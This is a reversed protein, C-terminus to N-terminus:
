VRRLCRFCRTWFINSPLRQQLVALQTSNCHTSNCRAHRPMECPSARAHHPIEGVQHKLDNPRISASNSTWMKNALNGLAEAMLGKHGLFNTRRRAFCLLYPPRCSWRLLLVAYCTWISDVRGVVGEERRGKGKERRMRASVRCYSFWKKLYSLGCFLFPYVDEKFVVHLFLCAPFSLPFAQM